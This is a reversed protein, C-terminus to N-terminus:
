RPLIYENKYPNDKNRVTLDVRHDYQNVNTITPAYVNYTCGCNIIGCLIILTYKM